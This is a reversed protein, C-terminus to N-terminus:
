CSERLRVYRSCVQGGNHLSKSMSSYRGANGADGRPILIVYPAGSAKAYANIFPVSHPTVATIVMEKAWSDARCDAVQNASIPSASLSLIVSTLELGPICQPRSKCKTGSNPHWILDGSWVMPVPGAQIQPPRQQQNSQNNALAQQPRQQQQSQAPQQTQQSQQPQAAQNQQLMQQRMASLLMQDTGPNQGQSQTPGGAQNQVAQQQSQVAAAAAAPNMSAQGQKQQAQLSLLTKIQQMGPANIDLTGSRMATVLQAMAEQSLPNGSANARATIMKFAMIQQQQLQSRAASM